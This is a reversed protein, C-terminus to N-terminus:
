WIVSSGEHGVLNVNSMYMLLVLTASMEQKWFLLPLVAGVSGAGYGSYSVTHM